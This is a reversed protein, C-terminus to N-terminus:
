AQGAHKIPGPKLYSAMVTVDGDDPFGITWFSIEALTPDLPVRIIEKVEEPFEPDDLLTQRKTYFVGSALVLCVLDRSKLGVM